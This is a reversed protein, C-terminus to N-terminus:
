VASLLTSGCALTESGMEGSSGQIQVSSKVTIMVCTKSWLLARALFSNIYYQNCDKLYEEKNRRTGYHLYRFVEVFAFLLANETMKMQQHAHNLKLGFAEWKEKLPLGVLLVFKLKYWWFLLVFFTQCCYKFWTTELLSMCFYAPAFDNLDQLHCVVFLFVWSIKNNQNQAHRAKEKKFKSYEYTLLM